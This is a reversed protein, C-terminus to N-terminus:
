FSEEILSSISLSRSAAVVLRALRLSTMTTAVTEAM